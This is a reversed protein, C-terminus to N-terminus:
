RRRWRSLEAKADESGHAEIFVRAARLPGYGDQGDIPVLGSAVYYQTACDLLIREAEAKADQSM